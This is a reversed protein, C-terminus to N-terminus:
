VKPLSEFRRLRSEALGGYTEALSGYTGYPGPQATSYHSTTTKIMSTTTQGLLGIVGDRSHKTLICRRFCRSSLVCVGVGM